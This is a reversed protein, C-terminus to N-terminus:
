NREIRKQIEVEFTAMQDAQIESKTLKKEPEPRKKIFTKVPPVIVLPKAESVM